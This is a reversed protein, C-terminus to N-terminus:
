HSKPMHAALKQLCVVAAGQAHGSLPLLRERSHEGSKLSSSQPCGIADAPLGDEISSDRFEPHWSRIENFDRIVAWVRDISAPIVSSRFM